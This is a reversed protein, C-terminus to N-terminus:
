VLTRPVAVIEGDETVVIVASTAASYALAVVTKNAEWLVADVNMFFSEFVRVMGATDAIGFFDFDRECKWTAVCAIQFGIEVTRLWRGNVSFLYLLNAAEVLIFGWGETVVIRRPPRSITASWLFAGDGWMLSMIGGDKTGVVAIGFAESVAICTVYDRTVCYLPTVNDNTWKWIQGATDVLLAVHECAAASRVGTVDVACVGTQSVATVEHEALILLRRDGVCLKGIVKAMPTVTRGGTFEIKVINVTGAVDAMLIMAAQSTVELVVVAAPAQPLAIVPGGKFPSGRLLFRRRPHAEVFLGADGFILDIWRELGASVDDSELFKRHMYIFEDPNNSCWDPLSLHEIAEPMFFFEPPLESATDSLTCWNYMQQISEFSQVQTLLEPRVSKAIPQALNRYQVPTGDMGFCAIVWPFIPYATMDNYSRGAFENLIMIYAFNSLERDIWKQTIIPSFIVPTISPPLIEMASMSRFDFSFTFNDTTFIDFATSRNRLIVHSIEDFLIIRTENGRTFYFATSDRWFLTRTQKGPSVRYALWHCQEVTPLPANDMAQHQGFCRTILPQTHGTCYFFKRRSIKPVFEPDRWPSCQHMAQRVFHRLRRINRTSIQAITASVAHLDVAADSDQRM